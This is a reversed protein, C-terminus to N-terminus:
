LAKVERNDAVGADPRQDVRVRADHPHAHRPEVAVRHEARQEVAVTRLAPEVDFEFPSRRDPLVVELVRRDQAGLHLVGVTAPDFDDVEGRPEVLVAADESRDAEHPDDALQRAAWAHADAEQRARAVALFRRRDREARVVDARSYRRIRQPQRRIGRDRVDDFM